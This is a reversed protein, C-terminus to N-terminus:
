ERLGFESTPMEYFGGAWPIQMGKRKAYQAGKPESEGDENL